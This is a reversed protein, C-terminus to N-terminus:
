SERRFTCPVSAVRRSGNTRGRGATRRGSGRLANTSWSRRSWRTSSASSSGDARRSSRSGGGICRASSSSRPTPTSPRITSSSACVSLSCSWSRRDRVRPRVLASNPRSCPTMDRRTGPSGPPMCRQRLCLARRSRPPSCTSGPVLARPRCRRASGASNPWPRLSPGPRTRRLLSISCRRRPPLWRPRRDARGNRQPVCPVPRASTRAARSSGTASGCITRGPSVCGPPWCRRTDGLRTTGCGGRPRPSSASSSTTRSSVQLWRCGADNVRM